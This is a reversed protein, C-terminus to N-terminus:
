KIKGQKENVRRIRPISIDKFIELCLLEERLNGFIITLLNVM